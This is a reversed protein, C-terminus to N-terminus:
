KITKLQQEDGESTEVIKYEFNYQVRKEPEIVTYNKIVNKSTKREAGYDGGM